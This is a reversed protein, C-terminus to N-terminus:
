EAGGKPGGETDAPKEPQLGADGGEPAKEPEKAPEKPPEKVPETAPRTDAPKEPQLGADGGEPAKEPEKAPEKAPEKVPETAPRTAAGEPAPPVTVPGFLKSPKPPPAAQTAPKSAAPAVVVTKAALWQKAVAAQDAVVMPDPEISTVSPSVLEDDKYSAPEDQTSRRDCGAGLLALAVISPILLYKM